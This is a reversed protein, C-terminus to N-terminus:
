FGAGRLDLLDSEPWRRDALALVMLSDSQQEVRRLGTRTLVHLALPNQVPRFGAATYLQADGFLLMFEAPSQRATDMAVQLLRAAIGQGRHDPDTAVDGLGVVTLLTDGLRVARWVLAMHGIIVGANRQVVRLHQRQVFYSRGGFDTTFSRRLLTAIAADDARSLQWEPILDISMHDVSYEMILGSYRQSLPIRVFM